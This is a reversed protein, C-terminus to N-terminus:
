ASMRGIKESVIKLVAGLSKETDLSSYIRM